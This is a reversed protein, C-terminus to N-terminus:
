GVIVLRIGVIVAHAVHGVVARIVAVLLTGTHAPATHGVIVGVAVVDLVAVVLSRTDIVVQVGVAIADAIQVVVARLIGVSVLGVVVSVALAIGAFRRALKKRQERAPGTGGLHGQHALGEL